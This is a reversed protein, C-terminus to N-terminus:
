LNLRNALMPNAGECILFKIAEVDEMDVAFQIPTLIPIFLIVTMQSVHLVSFGFAYSVDDPSALGLRFMQQIGAIDGAAALHFIPATDPRIRPMRLAITPCGISDSGWYTDIIRGLLWRPFHYTLNLM